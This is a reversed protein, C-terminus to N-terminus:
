LIPGGGMGTPTRVAPWGRDIPFDKDLAYDPNTQTVNNQRGPLGKPMNTNHFARARAKMDAVPDTSALKFFAADLIQIQTM